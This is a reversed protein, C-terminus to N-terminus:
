QIIFFFVVMGKSLHANKYARTISVEIFKGWRKIQDKTLTWLLLEVLCPNNKGIKMCLIKNCRPNSSNGANSGTWIIAGILAVKRLCLAAWILALELHGLTSDELTAGGEGEEVLSGEVSAYTSGVAAAEGGGEVKSSEPMRWINSVTMVMWAAWPRSKTSMSAWSWDKLAFKALM